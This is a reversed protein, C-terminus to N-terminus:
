TWACRAASPCAAAAFSSSGTTACAPRARCATRTASRSADRHAVAEARGMPRRVLRGHGGPDGQRARHRRVRDHGSARGGGPLAAEAPDWLRSARPAGAHADAPLLGPRRQQLCPRVPAHHWAEPARGGGRRVPRAAARHRRQRRGRRGPPDDGRRAHRGELRRPATAAEVFADKTFGLRSMGTDVKLHVALPRRGERAPGLVAELTRPTSVVPTLQHQRLVREQGPGFAALVVIPVQLGTERLAVAEEVYAVALM